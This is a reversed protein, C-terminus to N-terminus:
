SLVTERSGGRGGLGVGTSYGLIILVTRARPRVCGHNYKWVLGKKVRGKM